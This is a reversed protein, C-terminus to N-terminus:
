RRSIYIAVIGLVLLLLLVIMSLRIEKKSSTSKNEENSDRVFSKNIEVIADADTICFEKCTGKDVSKKDCLKICADLSEKKNKTKMLLTPFYHPVNNWLVPPQYSQPYCGDAGVVNKMKWDWVLDVCQKSCDPSVYLSNLFNPSSYAGCTEFCTSNLMNVGRYEKGVRDWKKQVAIVPDFKFETTM